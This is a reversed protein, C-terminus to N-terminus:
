KIREIKNENKSTNYFRYAYICAFLAAVGVGLLLNLIFLTSLELNKLLTFFNLLIIPLTFGYGSLIQSLIFSYALYNAFVLSIIVIGTITMIGSLSLLGNNKKYFIFALHIGLISAVWAYFGFYLLIGWVVAGILAGLIAGGVGSRISKEKLKESTDKEELGEAVQQYSRESLFAYSNELQYLSVSEDNDGNIFDGTRINLEQLRNTVTMIIGQIYEQVKKRRFPMNGEVVFNYPTTDDIITGKYKQIIENKLNKIETITENNPKMGIQITYSNDTYQGENIDVVTYYGSVKGSFSVPLKTKQKELGLENSLFDLRGIKEV